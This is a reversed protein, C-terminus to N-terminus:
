TFNAWKYSSNTLDTHSKYCSLNDLYIYIAISWFILFLIRQSDTQFGTLSEVLYFLFAWAEGPSEWGGIQKPDQILQKRTQEETAWRISSPTTKPVPIRPYERYLNSPPTNTILRTYKGPLCARALPQCRAAPALENNSDSCASRGFYVRQSTGGFTLVTSEM